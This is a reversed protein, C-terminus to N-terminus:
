QGLERLRRKRMKEAASDNPSEVSSGGAPGSSANSSGVDTPPAQGSLNQGIQLERTASGSVYTLSDLSIESVKGGALADGEHVALGEGSQRNELYAVFDGDLVMVGTFVIVDQPERKTAPKTTSQKPSKLKEKSFISRDLLVKYQDDIGGKKGAKGGSDDSKQAFASGVGVISALAIAAVWKLAKRTM